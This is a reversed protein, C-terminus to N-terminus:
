LYSDYLLFVITNKTKIKTVPLTFGIALNKFNKKLMITDTILLLMKIVVTNSATNNSFELKFNFNIKQCM